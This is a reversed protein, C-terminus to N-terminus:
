KKVAFLCKLSGHAASQVLRMWNFYARQPTVGCAMLASDKLGCYFMDGFRSIRPKEDVAM